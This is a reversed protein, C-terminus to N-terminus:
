WRPIKSRACRFGIRSMSEREPIRQIMARFRSGTQQMEANLEPSQRYEGGRVTVHAFLVPATLTALAMAKPYPAFPSDTFEPGNSFLGVIPPTTTTRDFAPNGVTKLDRPIVREDNGWPFRTTGANTAAFEYEFETPLRKGTLEAHQVCYDFYVRTMPIEDSERPSPPEFNGPWSGGSGALYEAITVEHPDLYFPAIARSHIPVQPNNAIGVEFSDSGALLVMGDAVSAPPIGIQPWAIRDPSDKMRTWNRHRFFEPTGEPNRPVHRSVEHFRGDDLKAVVLYDAPTLDITCPSLDSAYVGRDLQPEGTIEDRPFFALKAGAPETTIEVKVSPVAAAAVPPIQIRQVPRQQVLALAVASSGLAIIVATALAVNKRIWRAGREVASMPRAKIAKGDLFAQLDEAFEKATAYRRDREKSLAKLCITELDRPIQQEIARLSRPDTSQIQKLLGLSSTAKFPKQGTLLEYLVVGLSFVDSRRDVRHSEGSAQEPSMYAPTGLVDGTITMTIETSGYKALGFDTIHPQNQGDILINGPKLDRHIVGREHAYDIARAITAVLTAANRYSMRQDTVIAKLTDGNIFESVIYLRDEDEFVEYVRVINPHNLAAAAKAERQFMQRTRDDLEERRPIKIAVTRELQKDRARWVSGFQGAGVEELLQFHGIEGSPLLRYSITQESASVRSGCAPCSADQELTEDLLNLVANCNPCKVRM